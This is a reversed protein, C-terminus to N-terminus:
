SAEDGSLQSLNDLERDFYGVEYGDGYGEAYIPWGCEHGDSFGEAYSSDVADKLFRLQSKTFTRM